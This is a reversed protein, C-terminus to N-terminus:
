ENDYGILKYIIAEVQQVPAYKKKKFLNGNELVFESTQHFQTECLHWILHSHNDPIQLKDLVYHQVEHRWTQEMDGHQQVIFTRDSRPVYFGLIHRPGWLLYNLYKGSHVDPSETTIINCEPVKKLEEGISSLDMVGSNNMCDLSRNYELEVDFLASCPVVHELKTFPIKPYVEGGFVWLPEMTSFNVIRTSFLILIVYLLRFTALLARM